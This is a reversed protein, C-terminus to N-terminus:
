FYVCFGFSILQSRSTVIPRFLASYLQGCSGRWVPPAVILLVIRSLLELVSRFRMVKEV